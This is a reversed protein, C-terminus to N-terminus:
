VDYTKMREKENELNRIVLFNIIFSEKEIEFNSEKRISRYKHKTM